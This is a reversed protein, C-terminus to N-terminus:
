RQSEPVTVTISQIRGSREFLSRSHEPPLLNGELALSRGDSFELQIAAQKGLIDCVPIQFATFALTGARTLIEEKVQGTL